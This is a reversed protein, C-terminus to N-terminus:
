RGLELLFGVSIEVSLPKKLGLELTRGLVVHDPKGCCYGVIKADIEMKPNSSSQHFVMVLLMKPLLTNIQSVYRSDHDM